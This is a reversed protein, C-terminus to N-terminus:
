KDKLLAGSKILIAFSAPILIMVEALWVIPFKDSTRYYGLFFLLTGILMIISTIAYVLNRHCKQVTPKGTSKRFLYGIWFILSIFLAAASILHIINSYFPTLGIIGVKCVDTNYVSKCQFMATLFAAISMIKTCIRDKYDYGQYGWFYVSMGGMVFPLIYMTGYYTASESISTFFNQKYFLTGIFVVFIGLSLGMYGLVKLSNHSSKSFNSDLNNDHLSEIGHNINKNLM